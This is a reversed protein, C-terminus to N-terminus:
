GLRAGSGAAGRPNIDQLQTSEESRYVVALTRLTVIFTEQLSLDGYAVGPWREDLLSLLAHVLGEILRDVGFRAVLETLDGPPASCTLENARYKEWFRRVHKRRIRFEANPYIEEVLMVYGSAHEILVPLVQAWDPMATGTAERALELLSSFARGPEDRLEAQADCLPKLLSQMTHLTQTSVMSVMPRAM